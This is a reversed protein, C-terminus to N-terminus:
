NFADFRFLAYRKWDKGAGTKSGFSDGAAFAVKLVKGPLQKVNDVIQPTTKNDLGTDPPLQGQRVNLLISKPSAEQGLALAGGLALCATLVLVRQRRQATMTQEKLNPSWRWVLVPSKRRPFLTGM